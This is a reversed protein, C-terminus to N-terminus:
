RRESDPGPQRAADAPRGPSRGAGSLEALEEASLLGDGNVDLRTFRLKHREIYQQLYEAENLKGDGDKDWAKLDENQRELRWDSDALTAPLQPVAPAPPAITGVASPSDLVPPGPM